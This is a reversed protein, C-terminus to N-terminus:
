HSGPPGGKIIFPLLWYCSISSSQLSPLKMWTEKGKQPDGEAKNSSTGPWWSCPSPIWINFLMYIGLIKRPTNIQRTLFSKKIITEKGFFYAILYLIFSFIGVHNGEPWFMHGAAVSVDRILSTIVFCLETLAPNKAVRRLNLRGRGAGSPIGDLRTLWTLKVPIDQFM